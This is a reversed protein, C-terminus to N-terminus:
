CAHVECKLIRVVLDGLYFRLCEASSCVLRVAASVLRFRRGLQDELYRQSTAYSPCVGEEASTSVLDVLFGSRGHQPLPLRAIGFM